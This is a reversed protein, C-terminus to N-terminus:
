RRENFVLKKQKMATQWGAPFIAVNNQTMLEMKKQIAKQLPLPLDYFAQDVQTEREFDLTGNQHRIAVKRGKYYILIKIRGNGTGDMGSTGYIIFPDTLGDKDHDKFEMYKTWFWISNEEQESKIIHDNMEWAKSLKGEAELINVAKITHHLTDKDKIADRSETLICYHKGSRDAYRHARYVPFNINMEKKISDTLLATLERPSVIDSTLSSTQAIASNILFILFGVLLKQKM